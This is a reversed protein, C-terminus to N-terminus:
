DWANKKSDISIFITLYSLIKQTYKKFLISNEAFSGCKIFIIM